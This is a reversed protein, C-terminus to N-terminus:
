KFFEDYLSKFGFYASGVIAGYFGGHVAEVVTATITGVGPLLVSGWIGGVIGGAIAGTITGDIDANVADNLWRTLPDQNSETTGSKLRPSNNTSIKKQSWFQLSYKGVSTAALLVYKEDDNLNSNWIREELISVNNFIQDYKGSKINREIIRKLENVFIRQENSLQISESKLNSEFIKRSISNGFEVYNVKNNFLITEKPLKEMFDNTLSIIMEKGNQASKLGGKSAEINRLIYELGQNHTQGIFDLPNDFNSIKNGNVDIEEICGQFFVSLVFIAIFSVITVLPKRIRSKIKIIM